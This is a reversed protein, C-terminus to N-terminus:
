PGTEGPQPHAAPTADLLSLSALVRQLKPLADRKKKQFPRLLANGDALVQTAVQATTFNPIASGDALESRSAIAHTVHDRVQSVTLNHFHLPTSTQVALLLNCLAQEVQWPRINNPVLEHTLATVYRARRLRELTVPFHCALTKRRLHAIQSPDPRSDPPPPTATPQPSQANLAVWATTNPTVDDEDVFTTDFKLLPAIAGVPSISPPSSTTLANSPGIYTSAGFYFPALPRSCYNRFARLAPHLTTIPKCWTSGLTVVQHSRDFGLCRRVFRSHQPTLALIYGGANLFLFTLELSDPDTAQAWAHFERFASALPEQHQAVLSVVFTQQHLEPSHLTAYAVADVSSDHLHGPFNYPGVAMAYPLCGYDFGRPRSTPSSPSKRKKRAM